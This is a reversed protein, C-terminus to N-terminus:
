RVVRVTPGRLRNNEDKRAPGSIELRKGDDYWGTWLTFANQEYGRPAEITFTDAIVEGVQWESTHYLGRVPFHDAHLRGRSGHASDGHVFIQWDKEMEAEARWYFTVEVSEGPRVSNKQLKWGILRIKDGFNVEQLVADRPAEKLISKAALRLDEANAEDSVMRGYPHDDFVVYLRKDVERAIKRLDGLETRDVLIFKRGPRQLFAKTTKAGKLHRARNQFLFIVSRVPQQWDNYQGVADGPKAMSEYAKVFPKFSYTNQMAPMTVWSLYCAFAVAFASFGMLELRGIARRFLGLAIFIGLPFAFVQMAVFPFYEPPTPRSHYYLFLRLFHRFDLVTDHAILAFGMLAFASFWIREGRAIPPATEPAPELLPGISPAEEALAPEVPPKAVFYFVAAAIIVAAMPLVPFIYHAFKTGSLAFFLFPIVTALTIFANRRAAVSEFPDARKIFQWLGLPLFATWPYMGFGMHRIFYEFTNGPKDITGAVRGLHHYFIFENWYPWGYKYGMYTFWPAGVAFFLVLGWGARMRKLIHLAHRCPPLDHFVGLAIVLAAAAGILAQFLLRQDRSVGPVFYAAAFAIAGIVLAIAGRTSFYNLWRRGQTLARFDSWRFTIIAYAALIMVALAQPVFGKALMSLAQLFWFAIFPSNRGVFARIKQWPTLRGEPWPMRETFLGVTLFGMAAAYTMVFFTDIMVQRGIVVYQPATIIIVAALLAIKRGYLRRVWAYQLLGGAVAILAFPLRAAFEHGAFDAMPDWLATLSARLMWLLMIPKSWWNDLGRYWPTIWTDRQGMEWAVQAYHPEWPDWLPYSGLYPLYILAGILALVLYYFYEGRRDCFTFFGDVAVRLKEFVM